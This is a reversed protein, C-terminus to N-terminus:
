DSLFEQGPMQATRNREDHGADHSLFMTGIAFWVENSIVRQALPLLEQEEKALRELLNQCYLDMTRCLLTIHAVGHRFARHLCQRVSRLMDSGVRSLSELDALLPGAERTAERVAPMLCGEVKRQHRSEAFRTLEDLQSEICAPDIEQPKGANTQLYQQIRSIFSREKKQEVALTLLAYTAILM